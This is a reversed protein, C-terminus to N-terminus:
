SVIDATNDAYRPGTIVAMVSGVVASAVVEVMKLHAYKYGSAALAKANIEIIYTDGSGATTAFGASTAATVAGPTINNTPIRRYTFPM